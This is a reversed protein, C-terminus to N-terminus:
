FVLINVHDKQFKIQLLIFVKKVNWALCLASTSWDVWLNKESCCCCCIFVETVFAGRMSPALLGMSLTVEFWWPGRGSRVSGSLDAGSVVVLGIRVPGMLGWAMFGSSLLYVRKIELLLSLWMLCRSGLRYTLLFHQPFSFLAQEWDECVKGSEEM